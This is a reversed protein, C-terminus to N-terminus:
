PKCEGLYDGHALHAQVAEPAVEIPVQYPGPNHCLTVKGDLTNTPTPVPTPKSTSTPEPTSTPIPTSTYIPTHTLWPTNNPTGTWVPTPTNTWTPTETTPEPTTTYTPSETPRPSNTWAPTNSPSVGTPMATGSATPTPTRTPLPTRSTSTATPAQSAEPTPTPTIPTLYVFNSEVWGELGSDLARVYLMLGRQDQGLIEVEEGPKLQGVAASSLNPQEYVLALEVIYGRIGPTITVTMPFTVTYVTGPGPVVRTVEVITTASSMVGRIYLLFM